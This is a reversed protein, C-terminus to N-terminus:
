AKKKYGAPCKLNSGTVLKKTQGKYCTISTVKTSMLKVKITPASFHFGSASFYLWGNRNSLSTTTVQAGSSGDGNTVEVTARANQLDSKWLCSAVDSRIALLYNGQNKTGDSLYKPGAVQYSLTSEESNWTPPNPNYTTANTTLLGSVGAKDELCKEFEQNVDFSSKPAADIKWVESEYSAKTNLYKKYSIWRDVTNLGISPSYAYTPLNGNEPNPGAIFQDEFQQPLPYPMYGNQVPTISPKGRVVLSQDKKNLEIQADTIRGFFWGNLQTYLSGLKITLRFEIDKPFRYNEVYLVEKSGVVSPDYSEIKVPIISLGFENTTLFGPYQENGTMTAKVVYSTGGGHTHSTSDFIQVKGSPPLGIEEEGVWTSWLNNTETGDRNPTFSAIPHNWFKPGPKLLKWVSESTKKAEISQICGFKNKEDCYPLVAKYDRRPQESSLSSNSTSQYGNENPYSTSGDAFELVYSDTRSLDTALPAPKTNEAAADALFCFSATLAVALTLATKKM